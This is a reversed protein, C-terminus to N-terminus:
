APIRGAPRAVDAARLLGLLRGDAATIPAETLDSRDFADAMESAPVDPRYTSPGSRMVDAVVADSAHALEHARLMGLVIDDENTVVCIQAAGAKARAAGVTDNLRCVPVTKMLDGATPEHAPRDALPLGHQEWGKKGPVYDFVERRGLSELRHAARPSLDCAYDFCYVILPRDAEFRSVSDADIDRLPLSLAGPLHGQEFEERPLVEIVLAGREVLRMVDEPRYLEGPM